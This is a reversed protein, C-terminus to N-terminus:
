LVELTPAPPGQHILRQGVMDWVHEIPLMDPSRASWPLLSVRQRQFFAQVIRAMHPQANDQQFIAHPAAQLLPLVEPQLVERIYHNINLNGEIRLLCSRMNYGIAGWVMVSPTPGRHQQLICARLNREGAYCQVCIRGDNYSM